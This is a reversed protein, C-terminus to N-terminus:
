VITWPGSLKVKISLEAPKDLPYSRTMSEVIGSFAVSGLSLPLVLKFPVAAGAVRIAELGIQTSDGPELFAKIDCTGPEQTASIYTDVGSTTQMNTTKATSVKDGSMSVSQVGAITVFITPSLVTAYEVATGLGVFPNSM